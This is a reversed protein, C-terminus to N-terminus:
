PSPTALMSAEIGVRHSFLCSPLLRTSSFSWPSFSKNCSIINEVQIGLIKAVGYMDSLGCVIERIV